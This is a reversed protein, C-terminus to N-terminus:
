HLLHPPPQRNKQGFYIGLGLLGIVGALAIPHKLALRKGQRFLPVLALASLAFAKDPDSLQHVLQEALSKQQFHPPENLTEKSNINNM